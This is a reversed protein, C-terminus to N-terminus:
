GGHNVGQNEKLHIVGHGECPLSVTTKLSLHNFVAFSVKCGPPM